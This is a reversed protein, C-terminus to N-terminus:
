RIDNLGESSSRLAAGPRLSIQDNAPQPADLVPEEVLSVVVRIKLTSDRTVSYIRALRAAEATADGDADFSTYLGYHDSYTSGTKLVEGGHVYLIRAETYRLWAVEDSFPLLQTVGAESM